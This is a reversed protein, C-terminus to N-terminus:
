CLKGKLISVAFVIGAGNAAQELTGLNLAVYVTVLLLTFAYISPNFDSGTYTGSFARSRACECGWVYDDWSMCTAAAAGASLSDGKLNDHYRTWQERQQEVAAVLYDYQLLDKATSTSWHLPTDFQRPLSDLWPRYNNNVGRKTADIKDLKHLYAAMQVYWPFDTLNPVNVADTVTSDDPGSGPCEVTLAVNSPVTLVVSGSELQTSATAGAFWGLGAVDSSKLVLKSSVAVQVTNTWEQLAAIRNQRSTGTQTTKSRSWLATAISARSLPRPLLPLPTFACVVMFSPTSRLVTNSAIFFGTLTTAITRHRGMM